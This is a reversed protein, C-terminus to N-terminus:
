TPSPSFICFGVPLYNPCQLGCIIYTEQEEKNKYQEKLGKFMHLPMAVWELRRVQLIGHVSSGPPSCDMPNCLILCSQTVLVRVKVKM